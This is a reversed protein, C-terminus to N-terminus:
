FTYINDTKPSKTSEPQLDRPLSVELSWDLAVLTCPLLEDIGRPKKSLKATKGPSTFSAPTFTVAGGTAGAFVWVNNYSAASVRGLLYAFRSPTAGVSKVLARSNLWISFHNPVCYQKPPLVSEQISQEENVCTIRRSTYLTFIGLFECCCNSADVLISTSFKFSPSRTNKLVTEADIIIVCTPTYTHLLLNTCADVELPTVM